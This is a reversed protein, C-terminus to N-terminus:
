QPCPQLGPPNDTNANPYTQGGGNRCIEGNTQAPTTRSNKGTSSTMAPDTSVGGNGDDIDPSTRLRNGATSEQGPVKRFEAASATATASAAIAFGISFAFLTRRMIMEKPLLLDVADFGTQEAPPTTAVAVPCSPLPPYHPRRKEM